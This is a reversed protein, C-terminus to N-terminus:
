RELEAILSRLVDVQRGAEAVAQLADDMARSTETSIRNVEGVSHNIEETASSQEEAATAISRVQDSSQRALEVIRELLSGATEVGARSSDLVARTGDIGTLTGRVAQQIAGISQGVEKTATMTKEALKRVEDAVVAFGRGADGARAAEIAANLALLNTQDAIDEITQAIAGIGDAKASLDDVAQYVGQFGETIAAFDDRVKGFQRSGDGAATRSNEALAATNEANRAIELVSASMEEMATATEDVRMAQDRAGQSSHEIHRKLDESATALVQAVDRLQAAAHRMGETRAAEAKRTAEEALAKAAEAAQAAQHAAETQQGAERMKEKLSAVMSEMASRLVGFESTHKGRVTADLDGGAVQHSFEALTRVPRVVATNLALAIVGMLVLLAAVAGIATRTNARALAQADAFLEDQHVAIGLGMGTPTVSYFVLFPVGNVTTEFEVPQGPRAQAANRALDAGFPLESAPKLVMEDAAPYATVLGSQTEVAFALSSPTVSIASVVKRLTEMSLDLTSIGIVRGAGDYMIGAVTVMLAKTGATDFFPASWYVERDRKRARNWDRPVAQAYWDQNPYDYDRTNYEMTFTVSGNDWYAYPGYYERDTFFTYPEYWVGCGIADPYKRISSVLFDRVLPEMDADTAKHVAYLNEGATAIDRTKEQMVTMYTNIVEAETAVRSRIAKRTEQVHAEGAKRMNGLLLAYGLLSVLATLGILALVKLRVSM